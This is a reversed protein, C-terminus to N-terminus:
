VDRVESRFHLEQDLVSTKEDKEADLADTAGNGDEEKALEM